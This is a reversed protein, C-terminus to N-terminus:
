RHREPGPDLLADDAGNALSANVALTTSNNRATAIDSYGISGDTSVVKKVLEGNGNECGSTLHDTSDTESGPGNPAAPSATAGRASSKPPDAWEATAEVAQGSEYTTTWGRGPNITRLYDKFGFTTGSKDFRVVRIIPIECAGPEPCRTRSARREVQHKRGRGLDERVKVKTIRM